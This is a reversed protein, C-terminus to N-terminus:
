RDFFYYSVMTFTFRTHSLRLFLLHPIENCEWVKESQNVNSRLRRIESDNIYEKIFRDYNEYLSPYANNMIDLDINEYISNIDADSNVNFVLPIKLYESM